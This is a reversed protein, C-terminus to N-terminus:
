IITMLQNATEIRSRCGILEVAVAAGSHPPGLVDHGSTTPSLTSSALFTIRLVLGIGVDDHQGGARRHGQFVAGVADADEDIGDGLRGM